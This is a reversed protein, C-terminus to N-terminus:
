QQTYTQFLIPAEKVLEQLSKPMSRFQLDTPKLEPILNKFIYGNEEFKQM